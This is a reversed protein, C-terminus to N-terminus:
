DAQEGDVLSKNKALAEKIFEELDGIFTTAYQYKGKAIETDSGVIAESCEIAKQIGEKELYERLSGWLNNVDALERLNALRLGLEMEKINM